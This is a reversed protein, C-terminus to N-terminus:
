TTVRVLRLYSHMPSDKHHPESAVVKLENQRALLDYVKTCQSAAVFPFSLHLIIDALSSGSMKPGLWM